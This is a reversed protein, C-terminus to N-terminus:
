GNDFATQLVKLCAGLCQKIRFDTRHVKRGFFARQREKKTSYTFSFIIAIDRMDGHLGLFVAVAGPIM